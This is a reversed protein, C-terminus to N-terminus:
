GHLPKGFDHLGILFLLVMLFLWFGGVYGRYTPDSRWTWGGGSLLMLLWFFWYVFDFTM